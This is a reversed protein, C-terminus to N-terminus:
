RLYHVAVLTVDDDQSAGSQYSTLAERLADCVQQGSRGALGTLIAQVREHGFVRGKPDRCDTLGATFLVLTGGPPLSISNEDLLLDDFLGMAQGIAHPLAHVTGDADLLVPLEHGARAFDIQAM